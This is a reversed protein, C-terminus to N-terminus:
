LLCFLLFEFWGCVRIVLLVGGVVEVLGVVIVLYVVVRCYFVFFMIVVGLFFGM